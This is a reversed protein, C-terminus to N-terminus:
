KKGTNGKIAAWIQSGFFLVILIRVFDPVGAPLIAMIFVLFVIPGIVAGPNVSNNKRQKNTNLQQQQRNQLEQIRRQNYDTGPGTKSKQSSNKQNQAQFRPQTPKLKTKSKPQPSNQTQPQLKQPTPQQTKAKPPEVVVTTPEELADVKIGSADPVILEPTSDPLTPLEWDVTPIQIDFDLAEEVKREKYVRERLEHYPPHERRKQSKNYPREKRSESKNYHKKGM